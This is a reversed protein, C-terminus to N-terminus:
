SRKSGGTLSRGLSDAPAAVVVATRDSRALTAPLFRSAKKANNEALEGACRFVSPVVVGSNSRRGTHTTRNGDTTPRRWLPTSCRFFAGGVVDSSIM